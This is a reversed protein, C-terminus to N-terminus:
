YNDTRAPTCSFFSNLIKERFLRVTGFIFGSGIKSEASVRVIHLASIYGIKICEALSYGIKIRQRDEYM